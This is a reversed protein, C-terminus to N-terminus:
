AFPQGTADMRRALRQMFARVLDILERAEEDTYTREVHMTPNRWSSKIADASAYIEGFLAKDKPDNWDSKQEIANNLKRLIAGWNREGDKTPRPVQLCDAACSLGFEVIRMLHFVCATYRSLAFCKSAEAIEFTVASFAIDVDKGFIPKTHSYYPLREFPIELYTKARTESRLVHYVASILETVKSPAAQAIGEALDDLAIATSPLLLSAVCEQMVACRTQLASTDYSNSSAIKFSETLSTNLRWLATMDFSRMLDWLTWLRGPQPHDERNLLMTREGVLIRCTDCQRTM